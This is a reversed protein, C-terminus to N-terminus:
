LPLVIASSAKLISSSLFMTNELSQPRTGEWGESLSERESCESRSFDAIPRAGRNRLGQLESFDM